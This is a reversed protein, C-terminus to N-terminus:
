TSYLNVLPISFSNLRRLQCCLFGYFASLPLLFIVTRLPLYVHKSLKLLKVHVEIFALNSYFRWDEPFIGDIFRLLWVAYFDLLTQALFFIYPLPKQTCTVTSAAQMLCCLKTTFSLLESPPFIWSPPMKLSKNHLLCLLLTCHSKTKIDVSLHEDLPGSSVCTMKVNGKSQGLGAVQELHTFGYSYNWPFLRLNIGSDSGDPVHSAELLM